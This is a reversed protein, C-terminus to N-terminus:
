QKNNENLVTVKLSSSSSVLSFFNQGNEIIKDELEDFYNLVIEKSEKYIYIDTPVSDFYEFILKYKDDVEVQFGFFILLDINDKWLDQNHYIDLITLKGDIKKFNSMVRNGLRTLIVQAAVDNSFFLTNTLNMYGYNSIDKKRKIDDEYFKKLSTLDNNSSFVRDRLKKIYLSSKNLLYFNDVIWEVLSYDLTNM